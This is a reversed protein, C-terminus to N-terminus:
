NFMPEIYDKILKIRDQSGRTFQATIVVVMHNEPNVYIVNGGQGMAAYSHQKEDFIWWLYGYSLKGWKSHERTSEEIWQKSVLQQGNWLGNNLYLEGIKIMDRPTLTIGWAATNNGQPDVAWGSVDRAKLFQLNEERNHLEINGGMSIELPNFLNEKAFELLSKGTAKKFVGSLIHTGVLASYNFEGIRGRGGLLDLAFTIWNDSTFVKEYPESKYKYPATMTMMDKLTIKQLTTEGKKVTYEPFFDLVKEELGKIYGKDIAMGFLISVISKTASAIHVTNDKNYGKYYKEYVINGDKMVVLGTMNSSSSNTIRELLM